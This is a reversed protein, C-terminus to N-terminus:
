AFTCTVKRICFLGGGPALSGISKALVVAPRRGRSVDCVCPWRQRFKTSPVAIEIMRMLMLGAYSKAALFARDRGLM